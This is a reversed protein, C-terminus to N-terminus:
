KMSPKWNMYTMDFVDQGGTMSESDEYLPWKVGPCKGRFIRTRIYMRSNAMIHNRMSMVNPEDAANM